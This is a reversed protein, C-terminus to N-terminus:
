MFIEDSCSYCKCTCTCEAKKLEKRIFNRIKLVNETEPISEVYALSHRLGIIAKESLKSKKIFWM